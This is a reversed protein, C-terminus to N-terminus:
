GGHKGAGKMGPYKMNLSQLLEELAQAVLYSKYWNQNAPIIQWPIDNCNEFVAEYYGMYEDWNKSEKFDAENYKWMKRPEKIREELRSLQEKHSVHLYFKLIHTNNQRHLMKEFANIDEMRQGATKDDITGHVRTVLVDEYHSRNFLTIMGKAPVHHHVRWLFDHSLEELTPEKFSVVNVGQPNMSTFVDRTLGDKGAGDMGQVVILVAHKAEAYLLNQLEDLNKLIDATKAKIAAKDTGAPADPSITALKIKTM